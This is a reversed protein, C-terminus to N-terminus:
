IELTKDGSLLDDIDQATFAIGSVDALMMLGAKVQAPYEATNIQTMVSRLVASKDDIDKMQEQFAKQKQALQDDFHAKELASWEKKAQLVIWSEVLDIGGTIVKNQANAMAVADVQKYKDQIYRKDALKNATLDGNVDMMDLMADDASTHLEAKIETMFQTLRGQVDSALEINDLKSIVEKRVLHGDLKSSAIEKAVYLLKVYSDLNSAIKRKVEPSVSLAQRIQHNSQRLKTKLEEYRLKDKELVQQNHVLEDQDLKLNTQAERYGRIVPQCNTQWDMLERSYSKRGVGLFMLMPKVPKLAVALEYEDRADEIFSENSGITEKSNVINLQADEMKRTLFNFEDLILDRSAKMLRLEETNYIAGLLAKLEDSMVQRAYRYFIHAKPIFLENLTRHILMLRKMDANVVAVDHSAKSKLDVLESKLKSTKNSSEIYHGAMDVVALLIMAKNGKAKSLHSSARNLSQKFSDDIEKMLVGCSTALKEYETRIVDLMGQTNLYEIKDFDFLTPAVVKISDGFIDVLGLAYDRYLSVVDDRLMVYQSIADKIGYRLEEYGGMMKAYNDYITQAQQKVSLTGRSGTIRNVDIVVGNASLYAERQGQKDIVKLYQNAVQDLLKELGTIVEEANGTTLANYLQYEDVIYKSEDNTKFAVRIAEDKNYKLYAEWVLENVVVSDGTVGEIALDYALDGRTYISDSEVLKQALDYIKEYIKEKKM